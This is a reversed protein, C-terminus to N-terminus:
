NLICSFFRVKQQQHPFNLQQPNHGVPTATKRQKSHTLLAEKELRPTVYLSNSSGKLLGQEVM